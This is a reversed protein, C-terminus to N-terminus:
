LRTSFHFKKGQSFYDKFPFWLVCFHFFLPVKSSISITFFSKTDYYYIHMIEHKVQNPDIVGIMITNFLM